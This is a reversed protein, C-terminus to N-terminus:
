VVSKAVPFKGRVGTVDTNIGLFLNEDKVEM